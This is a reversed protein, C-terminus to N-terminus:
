FLVADDVEDGLVTEDVEVVELRSGADVHVPDRSLGDESGSLVLSSSSDDSDVPLSLDETNSEVLVVNNGVDKTLGTKRSGELISGLRSLRTREKEGKWFGEVVGVEGDLESRSGIEGSGVIEVDLLVSVEELGTLVVLSGFDGGVGRSTDKSSRLRDLLELVDGDRRSGKRRNQLVETDKELLSLQVPDLRQLERPWHQSLSPLLKQLLPQLLVLHTPDDGERSGKISSLQLLLLFVFSVHQRNTQSKTEFLEFATLLESVDNPRVVEGESEGDVKSSLDGVLDDGAESLSSLEGLNNTRNGRREEDFECEREL